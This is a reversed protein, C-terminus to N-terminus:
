QAGATLNNLAQRMELATKQTSSAFQEVMMEADRASTRLQEILENGRQAIAAALDQVGSITARIDDAAQEACQSMAAAAMRGVPPVHEPSTSGTANGNPIVKSFEVQLGELSDPSPTASLKDMDGAISRVARRVEPNAM